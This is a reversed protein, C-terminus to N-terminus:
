WVYRHFALDTKATQIYQNSEAFSDISRASETLHAIDDDNLLLCTESFTMVELVLQIKMRDQIDAASLSTIVTDHNSIRVILGYRELEALAEQVTSQSVKM